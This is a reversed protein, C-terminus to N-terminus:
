CVLRMKLCKRARKACRIFRRLHRPAVWFKAKPDFIWGGPRVGGSTLCLRKKFVKHRAEGGGAFRLIAEAGSDSM